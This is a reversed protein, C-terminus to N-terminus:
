MKKHREKLVQAASSVVILTKWTQLRVAIGFAVFASPWIASAFSAGVDLLSEHTRNENTATIKYEYEGGM